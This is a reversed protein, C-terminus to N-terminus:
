ANKYGQLIFPMIQDHFAKLEELYYAIEQNSAKLDGEAKRKILFAEMAREFSERNELAEAESFGNQAEAKGLNYYDLQSYSGGSVAHLGNTVTMVIRTRYDNVYEPHAKLISANIGQTYYHDFWFDAFRFIEKAFLRIIENSILEDRM